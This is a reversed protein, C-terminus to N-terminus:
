GAPAPEPEQQAPPMLDPDSEPEPAVYGGLAWVRQIESSLGRIGDTIRTTDVQTAIILLNVQEDDLTVVAREGPQLGEAGATLIPSLADAGPVDAAHAQCVAAALELQEKSMRFDM